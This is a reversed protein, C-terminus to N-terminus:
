QKFLIISQTGQLIKFDIKDASTKSIFFDFDKNGADVLRPLMVLNASLPEFFDDWHLPVLLSPKLKGITQEYYKEPWPAPHGAVTATGMFVVDARTTDLAAEVYNPSPKVYIAKGNHKIYFDFSGGETYAKIKAPQTLPKDIIVGDDKQANGASHKSPIVQVTFKGLQIEEYPRYLSLQDEKVGGGRGINLTSVSGFLTAGTKNTTYAVDFAHDYHSHTVFIGKVRDMKYTAFIKDIQATDSEIKSALAKWMSPRSFFGDILIQTEGDDFLLTSVGFFTVKVESGKPTGTDNTFYEKYRAIDGSPRTKIFIYVAAILLLAAAVGLIIKKIM